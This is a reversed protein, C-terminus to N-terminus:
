GMDVNPKVSSAKSQMEFVRMKESEGIANGARRM